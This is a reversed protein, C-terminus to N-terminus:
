ADITYVIFDSAAFSVAMVVKHNHVVIDSVDIAIMAAYKRGRDFVVVFVVVRRGFHRVHYFRQLVRDSADVM